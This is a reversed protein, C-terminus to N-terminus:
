RVCVDLGFAGVVVCGVVGVFCGLATGDGSVLGQHGNGCGASLGAQSYAVVAPPRPRSHCSFTAGEGYMATAPVKVHSPHVPPVPDVSDQVFM